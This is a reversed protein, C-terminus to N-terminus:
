KQASSKQEPQAMPQESNDDKEDEQYSIRAHNFSVLDAIFCEKVKDLEALTLKSNRLQGDKIRSSFIGEVMTKIAEPTPKALSRCAAECADALSIITLEKEYPPQGKYRFNEEKPPASSPDNEYEALAKRYFFSIFSDGHHTAIADRLFHGLHYEKALELGNVVHSGIIDCSRKPSLKEYEASSNINNEVFNQPANLKGIDHFLAGAKAKLPNVKIFRAADEALTAVNMVHVMTGPAERKLRELLPHNYDCLVMLSMNTDTKLFLEFIFLLILAGVASVFSNIFIATIFFKIAGERSLAIMVDGNLLLMSFIGMSFVRVFFSRYNSTNRVTLSIIASMSFWRLALEFARDPFVMLASISAILFGSFIAPRNGLLASFLAASLPIPIMVYLLMYDQIIGRHQLLSFLRFCCYNVILALVIVAGGRAFKGAVRFYSPYTLYLLFIVLLLLLFSGAMRYYFISFGFGRPLMEKEANLKDQLDQTIIQNKEILMDGRRCKKVVPSIRDAAADRAKATRAADYLLNGDGLLESAIATFEAAAAPSLKSKLALNEAMERVTVPYESSLERGDPTMVCPIVPNNKLDKGSIGHRLGRDFEKKVEGYIGPDDWFHRLEAFYRFKAAAKAGQNDDPIFNQGEDERAARVRLATIFNDFEKEIHSNKEQVITYHEPAKERAAEKAKATAESDTYSFDVLAWLSFPVRTGQALLTIDRRHGASLTLLVATVVWIITIVLIAPINSRNLISENGRIDPYIQKQRRPRSLLFAPLKM